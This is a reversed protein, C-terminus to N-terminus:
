TEHETGRSAAVFAVDGESGYSVMSHPTLVPRFIASGLCVSRLNTCGPTVIRPAGSAHGAQMPVPAASGVGTRGAHAPVEGSRLDKSGKTVPVYCFGLDAGHKTVPVSHPRPGPPKAGEVLTLFTLIESLYWGEAQLGKPQTNNENALQLCRQMQTKKESHMKQLLTGGVV